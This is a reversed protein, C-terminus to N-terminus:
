SSVSPPPLRGSRLCPPLQCKLSGMPGPEPRSLRWRWAAVDLLHKEPNREDPERSDQVWSWMQRRPAKTRQAATISRHACTHGWLEWHLLSGQSSPDGDAPRQRHDHMGPPRHGSVFPHLPIFAQSHRGEQPCNGWPHASAAMPGAGRAWEEEM